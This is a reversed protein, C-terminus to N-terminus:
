ANANIINAGLVINQLHTTQTLLFRSMVRSRSLNSKHTVGYCNQFYLNLFFFYSKGTKQMFQNANQSRFFEEFTEIHLNM